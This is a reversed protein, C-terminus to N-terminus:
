RASAPRYEPSRLVAVLDVTLTLEAALAYLEPLTMLKESLELM